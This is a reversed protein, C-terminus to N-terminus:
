QTLMKFAHHWDGRLFGPLCWLMCLPELARASVIGGCDYPEWGFQRIIGGVQEKAGDDNGCLFMTPTGQEFHPNVMLANGVSSFAKVVHALPLKAQIWEGLSENPGTTYQLVGSVPPEDALPNTADILTKGALNESRALEIVSPAIRGLVALVVIEGFQAAEDFTGARAGANQRVWDQVEKKGTDRTGLMTDHGHKLFGAGLARGVDGSGLVAVKM